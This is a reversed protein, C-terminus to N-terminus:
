PLTRRVTFRNDEFWSLFGLWNAPTTHSVIWPIHVHLDYVFDDLQKAMYQVNNPILLDFLMDCIVLGKGHLCPM